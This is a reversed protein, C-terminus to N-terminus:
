KIKKMKLTYKETPSRKSAEILSEYVKETDYIGSSKLVEMISNKKDLKNKSPRSEKTELFIATGNYKMGSQEKSKMFLKIEGEIEQKRTRLKKNHQNNQKIASELDTLEDILQKISSM